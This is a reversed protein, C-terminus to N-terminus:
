INNQPRRTLHLYLRHKAGDTLFEGFETYTGHAGLQLRAPEHRNAGAQIRVWTWHLVFSHVTKKFKRQKTLHVFRPSIALRDADKNQLFALRAGLALLAVELGAFPLILWAGMLAAIIAIVFIVCTLAALCIKLASFNDGGNASLDIVEVPTSDNELHNRASAIKQDAPQENANQGPYLSRVPAYRPPQARGDTFANRFSTNKLATM